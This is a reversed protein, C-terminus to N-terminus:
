HTRMMNEYTGLLIRFNELQEWLFFDGIAGRLTIGVWIHNAWLEVGVM